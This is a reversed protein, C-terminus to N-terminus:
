NEVLSQPSEIEPDSWHTGSYSAKQFKASQLVGRRTLVAEWEVTIEHVGNRIIKITEARGALLASWDASSFTPAVSEGLRQQAGTMGIATNKSVVRSASVHISVKTAFRITQSQKKIFVPRNILRKTVKIRFGDGASEVSSGSVLENVNEAINSRYWLTNKDDKEFFINDALSVIRRVEEDPLQSAIANILNKLEEIGGICEVNSSNSCRDKIADRLLADESLFVIRCSGLSKPLGGAFQCFTELVIADKFGKEKGASFPPKRFAALDILSAWDVLAPDLNLLKLGHLEIQRSIAETVRPYLTREDINLRHGLLRELKALNPLLQNARASMQYHREKKVIDPIYWFIDNGTDQFGNQILESIESSLLKDAHDTFLSNTDLVVHVIPPKIRRTAM